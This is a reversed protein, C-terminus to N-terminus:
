DFYSGDSAVVKAWREPLKRIGQRFFEEDKSAIWEDLWNKINEYSTFRVDQLALQMLRFLHYDSPAIDPSYPPHSLVEWDQGQLYNKVVNATHPKANDHQFILKNHRNVWEPRKEEIARKLRMLQRRYVDGTITESPKLLEYYVVGKMDWWICLMVKDCHINRKAQSPGPEGPKVWAKRRKPNEYYMWKEDGTVIRHLFGKREQRQLLSECTIKRNEQQRETLEHPVWNGLKQVMGMKILRDSVCQQTVNLAAALQSQTQCNDEDLLQQLEEDEFKKQHGPRQADEIDFIGENFQRFWRRCTSDDLAHEGYAEQLM